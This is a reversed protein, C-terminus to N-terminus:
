NYSWFPIPRSKDIRLPRPFFPDIDIAQGWRQRVWDFEARFRGDKSEYVDATRSMSEHHVVECWPVLVHRLGMETLRLCLDLDNFAVGLHAEDFGGVSFFKQKALFLCAGTLGSVNRTVLPAFQSSIQDPRFGSWVHGAIGGVGTVIGAHQIRGDPYTLLPGVCGIDPQLAMEGCLEMWAPSKIVTDNNLFVLLDGQASRAATNCLRSFNFDGNDRIV